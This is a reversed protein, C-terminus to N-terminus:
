GLSAVFADYAAKDMLDQFDATDAAQMKFFWGAGTPDSNVLGPEGALAENVSVVTGSVPAYIDSAAKV